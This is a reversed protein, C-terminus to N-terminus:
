PFQPSAPWLHPQLNIHYLFSKFRGSPSLPRHVFEEGQEPTNRQKVADVQVLDGGLRQMAAQDIAVELDITWLAREDHADRALEGRIEDAPALFGHVCLDCGVGADARLKKVVVFGGAVHDDREKRAFGHAACNKSGIVVPHDAGRLSTFDRRSRKL